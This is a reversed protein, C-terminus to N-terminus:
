REYLINRTGDRYIVEAETIEWEPFLILSSLYDRFHCVKVTPVGRYFQTLTGDIFHEDVYVFQHQMNSVITVDKYGEDFALIQAVSESWEGCRGVLTEKGTPDMEKRVAKAVKYWHRM